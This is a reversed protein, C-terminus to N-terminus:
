RPTGPAPLRRPPPQQHPLGAASLGQPDDMTGVLEEILLDSTEASTQRSLTLLLIGSLILPALCALLIGLNAIWTCTEQDRQRCSALEKREAELADRQQTVQTQDQRLKEQLQALDRRAHADADVLQKSGEALSAHAQSVRQNQLSQERTTQEAMKALREDPAADGCGAAGVLPVAIALVIRWRMM